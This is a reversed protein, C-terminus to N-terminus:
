RWNPDYGKIDNPIKSTDAQYLNIHQIMKKASTSTLENISLYPPEGRSVKGSNVYKMLNINTRKCLMNLMSIQEDTIIDVFLDEDIPACADENITEEASIVNIKLMKRLVRAEARTAAVALLHRDYPSECNIPCADAVDSFVKKQMMMSPDAIVITHQVVARNGNDKTPYSITHVTSELVLVNLMDELVRRLGHVNPANNVLESDSLQNLVYETWNSDSPHPSLEETEEKEPSEENSEDVGDLLVDVFDDSVKEVIEDITEQIDGSMEQLKEVLEKKGKLQEVSSQDLGYEDILINRIEEVRMKQYERM